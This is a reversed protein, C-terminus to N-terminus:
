RQAHAASATNYKYEQWTCSRFAPRYNVWRAFRRLELRPSGKSGPERYPQAFPSLGLSRLFLARQEAENVDQVLMYCSYRKPKAGAKRLLRVAKEIHPMQAQNDCALRIPAWWKLAALRKAMSKDILRADLGQNFDVKLGMRAMKAFQEAAYEPLALINNDMLRVKKHRCFETIDAHPRIMGEKEPVICWGCSRICGRTLFGLSYDVGYFEYDPCIHEIAPPLSGALGGLDYGTGGKITHSPLYPSTESWSFVKSSYVIDYNMLAIFKEVTHGQTRHWAALKMLVLNPYSTNDADHLGVIM